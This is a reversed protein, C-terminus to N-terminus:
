NTKIYEAASIVDRESEKAFINILKHFVIINEFFLMFYKRFIDTDKEATSECGQDGHSKGAPLVTTIDRCTPM